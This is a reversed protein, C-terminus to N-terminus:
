DVRGNRRLTGRVSRPSGPRRPSTEEAVSIGNVSGGVVTTPRAGPRSDPALGVRIRPSQPGAAIWCTASGSRPGGVRLWGTSRGGASCKAAARPWGPARQRVRSSFAARWLRRLLTGPRSGRTSRRRRSTRRVRGSASCGRHARRRRRPYDAPHLPRRSPRRANEASAAIVCEAGIEVARPRGCGSVPQLVCPSPM